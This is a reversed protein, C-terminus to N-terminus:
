RTTPMKIVITADQREGASLPSGVVDSGSHSSVAEATRAPRPSAVGVTEAASNGVSVGNGEGMM